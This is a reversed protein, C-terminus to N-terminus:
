GGETRQGPRRSEERWTPGTQVTFYGMGWGSLLVKHEQFKPLVAILDAHNFDGSIIYVPYERNAAIPKMCFGWLQALMLMKHWTCLLQCHLTSNVPSTYPYNDFVGHRSLPSEHSRHFKHLLKRECLHGSRKSCDQWHTYGALNIATDRHDASHLLGQDKWNCDADEM